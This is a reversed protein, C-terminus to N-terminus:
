VNAAGGHSQIMQMLQGIPMLGRKKDQAEKIYDAANHKPGEIALAAELYPKPNPVTKPNNLLSRLCHIMAKPHSGRFHCELFLVVQRQYWVDPYKTKIQDIVSAMEKLDEENEHRGNGNGPKPPQPKPDQPKEELPEKLTEPKGECEREKGERLKGERRKDETQTRRVLEQDVGSNEQDVGSNTNIPSPIKSPAERDKKINQHDEFKRLQLYIDGDVIYLLILGVDAMDTLCEQIKQEDFDKVRPVIAGKIMDPDAYFRGEVDLHPIIWTYLMRASDTKLDALRRSTSIAKKLMRGDAMEGRGRGRWGSLSIYYLM